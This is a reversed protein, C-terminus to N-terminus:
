GNAAERGVGEQGDVRRDMDRGMEEWRGTWQGSGKRDRGIKRDMSRKGERGIKRDMSRKREQRKGDEQGNVAERGM